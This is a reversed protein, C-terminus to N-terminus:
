EVKRLWKKREGLVTELIDEQRIRGRKDDSRIRDMRLVGKVKMGHYSKLLNGNM